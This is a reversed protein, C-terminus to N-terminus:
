GRRLLAHLSRARTEGLALIALRRAVLRSAQYGSGAASLGYGLLRDRLRNTPRWRGHHQIESVPGFLASRPFWGDPRLNFDGKLLYRGNRIWLIRHVFHIDGRDAVWIEGPHPLSASRLFKIASGPSIAPWM